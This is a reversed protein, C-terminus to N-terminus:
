HINNSINLKSHKTSTLQNPTGLNSDEPDPQLISSLSSSKSEEGGISM